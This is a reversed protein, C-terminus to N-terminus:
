KCVAQPAATRHPKGAIAGLATIGIFLLAALKVAFVTADIVADLAGKTPMSCECHEDRQQHSSTYATREPSIRRSGIVRALLPTRRTETFEVDIIGPEHRVIKTM